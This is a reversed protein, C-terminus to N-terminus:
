GHINKLALGVIRRSFWAEGKAVVDIVKNFFRSKDAWDLYGFAGIFLCSVVVDDALESGLLIIKSNPSEALITKIFIGTNEKEIDYDIFVIGPHHKIVNELTDATNDVTDLIEVETSVDFDVSKDTMVQIQTKM